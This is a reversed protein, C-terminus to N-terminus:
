SITNQWSLQARRTVETSAYRSVLQVHTGSIQIRRDLLDGDSTHLQYAGKAGKVPILAQHADSEAQAWADSVGPPLQLYPEPAGDPGYRSNRLFAYTGLGTDILYADGGASGFNQRGTCSIAIDRRVLKAVAAAASGLVICSGAYLSYTAVSLVEGTVPSTGITSASVRLYDSSVYTRGACGAVLAGLGANPGTGGGLYLAYLPDRAWTPADAAPVPGGESYRCYDDYQVNSGPSPPPIRTVTVTATPRPTQRAPSSSVAARQQQSTVGHPRQLAVLGARVRGASATWVLVMSLGIAVIRSLNSVRMGPGRATIVRLLTLGPADSDSKLLWDFRRLIWAGGTSLGAQEVLYAQCAPIVTVAVVAGVLLGLRWVAPHELNHTFQMALLIVSTAAELLTYRRLDRRARRLDDSVTGAQPLRNLYRAGLHTALRATWLFLCINVLLGSVIFQLLLSGLSLSSVKGARAAWHVRKKGAVAPEEEGIRPDSDPLELGAAAAAMELATALEDGPPQETAPTSPTEIPPPTPGTEPRLGPPTPPRVERGARMQWDPLPGSSPIDPIEAM